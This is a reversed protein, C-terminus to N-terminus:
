LLYANAFRFLMFLIYIVIVALCVARRKPYKDEWIVHLSVALIVFLTLFFHIGNTM